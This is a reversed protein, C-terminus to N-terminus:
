WNREVGVPEWTGGRRRLYVTVTKKPDGADIDAALYLGRGGVAADRPLEPGSAGGIATKTETENDFRSWRINYSRPAAFKYKVGLDEFALRSGGDIRFDDLPLVRTFWERGIKQQRELLIRTLYPLAEPHTYQGTALLARIEPETFAMVQKTAWFADDPLCNEFAPNFYNTKWKAPDFVESEIRGAEYKLPYDALEWPAVYLGFTFFHSATSKWDLLYVFGSRPSKPEFADTGLIASFDLLYHRVFKIKRKEDQQLADHSNLSKFDTHNVWSAFVRLGRLERRHEHLITDNPDDTRTGNWRFPGLPKGEIFLSAVARYRGDKTQPIGELMDDIDREELLRERGKRDIFKTGPGVVLQERTFYILYNQPTNYGFAYFFKSGIVDAGTALEFNEEVDFKIPYTRKGDNITFGPSVGEVKVDVVKWQTQPAPPNTNGPGRVMEEITMRRARHRNTYWESDPVDGLTNASQARIYQGNGLDSREGPKGFTMYMFDYENSLKRRNLEGADIPPPVQRMPDDPFFKRAEVTIPLVLAGTLIAAALLRQQVQVM